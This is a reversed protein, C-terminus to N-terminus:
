YKIIFKCPSALSATGVIGSDSANTTLGLEGSTTRYVTPMANGLTGNRPGAGVMDGTGSITKSGIALLNTGTDTLGLSKGDGKISVTSSTVFRANTYNPLAFTTSGDGSGYTTGIVAFLDSYLTRSISGGNCLLWGNPAVSGGYLEITGVKAGGSSSFGM